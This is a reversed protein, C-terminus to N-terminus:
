RHARPISNSWRGPLMGPRGTKYLRSAPNASFPNPIFREATLDPRNRYGRAVGQGAIHLEGPVRAPVQKQNQDLIYIKTNAIPRGISPMNDSRECSLVPGSTAVM